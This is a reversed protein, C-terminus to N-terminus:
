SRPSRRPRSARPAANTLACCRQEHSIVLRHRERELSDRGGTGGAGADERRRMPADFRRREHRDACERGHLREIRDLELRDAALHNERVRIVQVKAGAILDDPREAAHM